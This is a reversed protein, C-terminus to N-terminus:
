HVQPIEVTMILTGQYLSKLEPDPYPSVLLVTHTVHGNEVIPGRAIRMVKGGYLRALRARDFLAAGDFADAPGSTEVKWSRPDDSPWRQRYYAAVRDLREDTTAFSFLAVRAPPAFILAHAPSASTVLAILLLAPIGANYDGNELGCLFAVV